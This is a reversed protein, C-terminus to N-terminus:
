KVAHLAMPMEFARGGIMRVWKGDNASYIDLNMSGNTVVLYPNEGSTVEISVGWEKLEIRRIRKKKKTDFVWVESGGGKHSGDYGDKHMLVFLRGSEHATVIQWGGPRWNEQKERDTVLSWPAEIGPVASSMDLPQVMGKFTPFWVRDGARGNFAFLPDEDADFFKATREQKKLTGDKNLHSVLMLDDGCLSAFSLEGSPYVLTCGPIQVEEVVKREEIDIISVSAAPSFNFVALYSEDGIFRMMGKFTVLQGRKGGPLVIEDIPALNVKDYVTVVDTREGRLRRPYFTEGAYVEPRKSSALFSGFQGVPLSGKYHRNESAVDVIIVKGDVLSYFNTDHAYIWTDPYSAPLKEIVGVPDVPLEAQLCTSFILGLIVSFLQKM